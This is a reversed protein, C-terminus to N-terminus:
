KEFKKKNLIRKREKNPQQQLIEPQQEKEKINVTQGNQENKLTLASPRGWEATNSPLGIKGLELHLAKREKWSIM